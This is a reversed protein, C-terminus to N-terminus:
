AKAEAELQFGRVLDSPTVGMHEAAGLVLICCCETVAGLLEYFKELGQQALVHDFVDTFAVGDEILAPLLRAGCLM